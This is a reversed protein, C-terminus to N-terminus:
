CVWRIIWDLRCSRSAEERKEEAAKCTVSIKFYLTGLAILVLKRRLKHVARSWSVRGRRGFEDSWLSQQHTHGHRLSGYCCWRTLTSSCRNIHLHFALAWVLLTCIDNPVNSYKRGLSPNFGNCREHRHHGGRRAAYWRKRELIKENISLTSVCNNGDKMEWDIDKYM